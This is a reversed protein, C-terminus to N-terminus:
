LPSSGYENDSGCGRAFVLYILFIINVMPVLMLLVWLGKRGLDHLRRIDLMIISISCVILLITAIVNGFTITTNATVLMRGLGMIVLMILYRIIYPKRNLRGEYSFYDEKIRDLLEM